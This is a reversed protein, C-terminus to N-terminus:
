TRTGRWWRPWQRTDVREADLLEALREASGPQRGLTWDDGRFRGALQDVLRRESPALAGEQLELLRAALGEAVSADSRRASVPRARGTM